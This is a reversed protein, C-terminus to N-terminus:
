EIQLLLIVYLSLPYTQFQYFTRGKLRTIPFLAIKLPNFKTPILLFLNELSSIDLIFSMCLPKIEPYLSKSSFFLISSNKM